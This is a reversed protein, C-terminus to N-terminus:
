LLNVITCRLPRPYPDSTICLQLSQLLRDRIITTIFLHCLPIPERIIRTNPPRQLLLGTSPQYRPCQGIIKTTHVLQPYMGATTARNFAHVHHPIIGAITLNIIHVPQPYRGEVMSIPHVLLYVEHATTLLHQRLDLGHCHDTRTIPILLEPGLVSTIRGSPPSMETNALAGKFQVGDMHIM